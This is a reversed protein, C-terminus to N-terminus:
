RVAEKNEDRQNRILDHSMKLLHQQNRIMHKVEEPFEASEEIAKKYARQAADEGFECSKLTSQTDNGSFTVKIDM